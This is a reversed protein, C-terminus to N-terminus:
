MKPIEFFIYSINAVLITRAVLDWLDLLTLREEILENTLPTSGPTQSVIILFATMTM